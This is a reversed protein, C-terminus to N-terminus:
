DVDVSSRGLRECFDTNYNKAKPDGGGESMMVAYALEWKDGFTYKIQEEVSLTSTNVVEVPGLVELNVEGLAKPPIILAYLIISVLLSIISYKLLKNM